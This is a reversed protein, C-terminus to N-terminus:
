FKTQWDATQQQEQSLYQLDATVGLGTDPISPIKIVEDLGLNEFTHADVKFITFGAGKLQETSISTKANMFIPIAVARELAALRAAYLRTPCNRSLGM